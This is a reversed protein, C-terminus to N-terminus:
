FAVGVGVGLAHGGVALINVQLLVKVKKGHFFFGAATKFGEVSETVFILQHYPYHVTVKPEDLAVTFYEDNASVLHATHFKAADKCNIGVQGGVYKELVAKM